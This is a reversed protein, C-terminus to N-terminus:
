INCNDDYGCGRKNYAGIVGVIILAFGLIAPLWDEFHVAGWLFLGGASLRIILAWDLNLLFRAM